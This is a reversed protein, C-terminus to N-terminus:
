DIATKVSSPWTLDAASLVEEGIHGQIKDRSFIMKDGRM